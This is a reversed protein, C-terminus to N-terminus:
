PLLPAHHTQTTQGTRKKWEIMSNLGGEGKGLINQFRSLPCQLSLNGLFKSSTERCAVYTYFTTTLNECSDLETWHLASSHMIFHHSLSKALCTTLSDTNLQGTTLWSETQDLAPFNLSTLTTLSYHCYQSTILSCLVPRLLM